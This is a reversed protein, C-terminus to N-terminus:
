RCEKKRWLGFKSYFGSFGTTSKMKKTKDKRGGSLGKRKWMKIGVIERLNGVISRSSGKAEKATSTTRTSRSSTTTEPSSSHSFNAIFRRSSGGLSPLAMLHREILYSVSALEYSDYLPSGCDWIALAAEEEKGTLTQHM